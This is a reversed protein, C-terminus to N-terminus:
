CQGRILIRAVILRCPDCLNSKAEVKNVSIRLRSSWRIDSISLLTIQGTSTNSQVTALLADNDRRRQITIPETQSLVLFSVIVQQLDLAASVSVLTCYVHM